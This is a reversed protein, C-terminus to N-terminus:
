SNRRMLNLSYTDGYEHSARACSDCFARPVKMDYWDKKEVIVEYEQECRPCKFLKVSCDLPILAIPTDTKNFTEKNASRAIGHQILIRSVSRADCNAAKGIEGYSRNPDKNFESCINQHIQTTNPNIKLKTPAESDELFRMKDKRRNVGHAIMAHSVTASNCPVKLAIGEYTQKPNELYIKYIREGLSTLYYNSKSM